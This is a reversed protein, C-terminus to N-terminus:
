CQDLLLLGKRVRAERACSGGVGASVREVESVSVSESEQRGWVM